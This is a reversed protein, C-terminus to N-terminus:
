VIMREVTFTKDRRLVVLYDFVAAGVLPKYIRRSMLDHFSSAHATALLKVGCWAASVLASCDSESTIEDVAIVDPTMTRLLIEIGESKRCGTLIDTQQGISFGDPFLEGREDVVSVNEQESRLRVLDRMLTTKGTGPPGILLISGIRDRLSDAIGPFCRAIRINLSRITRFASMCGGKEVADGCIGIRHGGPATIYGASMSESSWPSYRSATNIVFHLQEATVPNGFSITKGLRRIMPRQGLRLRLEQGEAKGLRDVEQRMSLPLISLLENWKCNM